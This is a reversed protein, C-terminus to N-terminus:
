AARPGDDDPDTLLSRQWQRYELEMHYPKELAPRWDDPLPSLDGREELWCCLEYVTLPDEWWNLAKPRGPFLEIVAPQTKKFPM